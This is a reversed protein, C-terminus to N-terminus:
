GGAVVPFLSVTDAESLKTDKGCLLGANRGNVLIIAEENIDMGDPTMLKKGFGAGYQKELVKLLALVDAPAPIDTEKCGTFDRFTAFFKLKM